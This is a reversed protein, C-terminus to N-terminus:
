DQCLNREANTGKSDPTIPTPGCRSKPPTNREKWSIKIRSRLHRHTVGTTQTIGKRDAAVRTTGIPIIPGVLVADATDRKRRPEV